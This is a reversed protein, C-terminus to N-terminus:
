TIDHHTTKVDRYQGARNSSLQADNQKGRGYQNPFKRGNKTQCCPVGDDGAHRHASIASMFRKWTLMSRRMGCKDPSGNSGLQSPTTVLSRLAAFPILYSLTLDCYLSSNGKEKCQIAARRGVDFSM